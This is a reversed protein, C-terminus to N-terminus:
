VRKLESKTWKLRRNNIILIKVQPGPLRLLTASRVNGLNKNFIQLLPPQSVYGAAVLLAMWWAVFGSKQAAPGTAWPSQWWALTHTALPIDKATKLKFFSMFPCVESSKKSPKSWWLIAFRLNSNRFIALDFNGFWKQALVSMPQAETPQFPHLSRPNTM